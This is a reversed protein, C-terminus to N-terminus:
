TEAREVYGRWGPHAEFVREARLEDLRREVKGFGQPDVEHVRVDSADRVATVRLDSGAMAERLKPLKQEDFGMLRVAALDVALPDTAALVVGLPVGKPALPGEGEGAVVGDLITLV